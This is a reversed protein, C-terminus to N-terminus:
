CGGNNLSAPPRHMRRRFIGLGLLASGFLWAAAPVPIESVEVLTLTDPDFSLNTIYEEGFNVDVELKSGPNIGGTNNSNQIRGTGDAYFEVLAPHYRGTDVERGNFVFVPDAGNAELDSVQLGDSLDASSSIAFELSSGQGYFDANSITRQLNFAPFGSPTSSLSGSVGYVVSNLTPNSYSMGTSLPGALDITFNFTSVNSFQPTVVFDAAEFTIVAAHAVSSIGSAAIFSLGRLIAKM